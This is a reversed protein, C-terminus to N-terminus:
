FDLDLAGTETVTTAGLPNGARDTAATSTTWQLSTTQTSTATAGGATGLTIVITNGSLVMSSASFTTTTTVYKKGSTMNGLALQTTDAANFISIVDPTGNVFRAMVPTAAGTWGSLISAPAMPESFSYTIVDGTEPKGAVGGAVNTTQIDTATPATNDVIRNAVLASNTTNGAADTAVARLDYGGNPLATTSWPCSAPSTAVTCIATWTSAGTPAREIRLSTLGSGADTATATLTVTGSVYAAPSALNVTPGTNDIRRGAITASATANGAGDTALVRLDYVGDAFANTMLTCSAPSTTTTCGDSWATTGTPALQFRILAIGSGTDFAAGSLGVTGRLPSGPNTLTVGTPVTADATAAATEASSVSEV